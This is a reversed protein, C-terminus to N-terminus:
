TNNSHYLNSIDMSDSSEPDDSLVEQEYINSNNYTSNLNHNTTTSNNISPSQITNYIINNQSHQSDEEVDSLQEVEYIDDDADIPLYDVDYQSYNSQDHSQSSSSALTQTYFSPPLYTYIFPLELLPNVIKDIYKYTYINIDKECLEIRNTSDVPRKMGKTEQTELSSPTTAYDASIPVSYSNINKSKDIEKNSPSPSSSLSSASSTSKIPLCETNKQNSKNSKSKTKNESSSQTNDNEFNLLFRYNVQNEKNDITNMENHSSSDSNPILDTNSLISMSHNYINQSSSHLTSKISNTIHNIRKCKSSNCSNFPETESISANFDIYGQDIGRTECINRIYEYIWVNRLINISVHAFCSQQFLTWDCGYQNVFLLLKVIDQNKWRSYDRSIERSDKIFSPTSSKNSLNKIRNRIKKIDKNPLLYHQILKWRRDGFRLLGKSLLIDETATFLLRGNSGEGGHMNGSSILPTYESSFYSFSSLYGQYQYPIVTLLKSTSPHQNIYMLLQDILQFNNPLIDFISPLYAGLSRPLIADIQRKWENRTVRKNSNNYYLYKYKNIDESPCPQLTKPRNGRSESVIKRLLELLRLLRMHLSKHQIDLSTLIIMQILLQYFIQLQKHLVSMDQQSFMQIPICRIQNHLIEDYLISNYQDEQLQEVERETIRSYFADNQEEEENPEYDEDDYDEEEEEEERKQREEESTLDRSILKGDSYDQFCSRLFRQYEEKEKIIPNDNNYFKDSVMNQLVISEEENMQKKTRTREAIPGGERISETFLIPPIDIVEPEFEFINLRFDNANEKTTPIYDEDDSLSLHDLSM